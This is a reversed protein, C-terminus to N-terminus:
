EGAGGEEAYTRLLEEEDGEFGRRWGNVLREITFLAILVGSIPISVTIVALPTGSPQSFIGLGQLCFVLGFCALFLAVALMVLHNITEIVLRKRGSLSQAIRALLFHENRRVAVAGGIFVGWVFSGLTVELLWVVPLGVIRTVVDVLVTVTFTFLLLGSLWMLVREVADLAEWKLHRETGLVITDQPENTSVV